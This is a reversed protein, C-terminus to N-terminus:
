KSVLHARIFRAIQIIVEDKKKPDSKAIDLAFSYLSDNSLRLWKGNKQLMYLLTTIAIRKNGNKFPHNKIMLYFFIAAKGNLGVYLNKKGFAMFPQGLCSELINPFRAGFDPIPENREMFRRAMEYAVYKVESVTISKTKAM